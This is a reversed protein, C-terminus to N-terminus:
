EGEAKGTPNASSSEQSEDIDDYLPSLNGYNYDSYCSLGRVQRAIYKLQTELLSLVRSSRNLDNVVVLMLDFDDTKLDAHVQRVTENLKIGVDRLQETVTALDKEIEIDPEAMSNLAFWHSSHIISRALENVSVHNQRAREKILAHDAPYARILFQTRGPAYLRQHLDVYAIATEGIFTGTQSCTLSVSEIREFIASTESEFLAFSSRTALLQSLNNSVRAIQLYLDHMVSTFDDLQGQTGPAYEFDDATLQSMIWKSRTMGAEAAAVRLAADEYDNLRLLVIKSKKPKDSKVFPM